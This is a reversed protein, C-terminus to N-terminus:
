QDITETVTVDYVFKFTDMITKLDNIPGLYWSFALVSGLKRSCEEKLLQGM